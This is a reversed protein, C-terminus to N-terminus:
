AMIPTCIADAYTPVSAIGGTKPRIACFILTENSGIKRTIKKTMMTVICSFNSFTVALYRLLFHTVLINNSRSPVKVSEESPIMLHTKCVYSFIPTVGGASSSSVVNMPGGNLSLKALHPIFSSFILSAISM